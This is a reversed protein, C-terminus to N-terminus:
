FNETSVFHETSQNLLYKISKDLFIKKILASVISTLLTSQKNYDSQHIVLYNITFINIDLSM